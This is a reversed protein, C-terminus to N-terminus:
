LREYGSSTKQCCMLTLLCFILILMIALLVTAAMWNSRQLGVVRQPTESPIMNTLNLMYGLTWGVDVNTVQASLFPLPIHFAARYWALQLALSPRQQQVGLNQEVAVTDTCVKTQLYGTLSVLQSLGYMAWALQGLLHRHAYSLLQGLCLCNAMRGTIGEEGM